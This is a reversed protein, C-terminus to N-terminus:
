APIEEATEPAPVSRLLDTVLAAWLSLGGMLYGGAWYVIPVFSLTAGALWFVVALACLRDGGPRGARVVALALPLIVVSFNHVWAVPPVLVLLMVLAGAQVLPLQPDNGRRRAGALCAGLTVVVLGANVGAALRRALAERADGGAEESPALWRVLVAQVSQNKAIRPDMMQEYRANGEAAADGTPLAVTTVWEVLLQMNGMPGFVAAPVILTLAVGAVVCALAAEWKRRLLLWFGLLIPYIRIAAALALAFAGGWRLGITERRERLFCDISVIILWSLIVSAQGRTLGSMWPWGTLVLLVVATSFAGWRSPGARAEALRASIRAMHLLAALSLVYFVGAALTKPLVALPVMLVAFVPLYMYLWGRVNKAEYLPTGEIVARGAAHYVTFDTREREGFGARYVTSWGVGIFLLAFAFLTWGRLRAETPKM